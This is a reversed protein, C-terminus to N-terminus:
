FGLLNFTAEARLGIVVADAIAPDASPRRVYHVNPQVALWPALQARYTAEIAVEASASRTAARYSDSTFAAAFAIGFEDKNRGAIWGCFKVGAGAFSDFKNFRGRATGLRFFADVGASDRRVVPFEGRFYTGSNGKSASSGDNRNFDATYRWHGLLFKGGGLPAQAEGVFLAGDGDGLKIATRRPHDPDGPVGDLLAARVAWGDVPEVQVRAGLSTFPFISPGNRGSQSFDTGIGNPSSVFLGATDLADFESNLDYLGAKLSVYKGIKQDIWAEYLRFARTGTEINSVGQTDGVGDSISKGNYYLSYIHLQAGRWGVLGEMDAEFVIDLNDLYRTGRRSGGAVNGIVESTYTLQLM